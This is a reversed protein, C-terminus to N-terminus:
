HCRDGARVEVLDLDGLEGLVDGAALLAQLGAVAPKVQAHALGAPLDAAAVRRRVPVRRPVGNWIRKSKM